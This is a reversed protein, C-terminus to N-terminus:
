ARYQPPRHGLLLELHHPLRDSEEVCAIQVPQALTQVGLDRHPPRRAPGLDARHHSGVRDHSLELADALVELLAVALDDLEGPRALPDDSPKQPVGAPAAAPDLRRGLQPECVAEPLPPDDLDPPEPLQRKYVDSAASSRSQTSRPPRRIM